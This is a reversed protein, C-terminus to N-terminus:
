TKCTKYRVIVAGRIKSELIELIVSFNGAMITKEITLNGEILDNNGLYTPM